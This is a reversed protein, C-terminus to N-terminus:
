AAVEKQDFRANQDPVYVGISVCFQFAGDLILLARTAGDERAQLLEAKLDLLGGDIGHGDMSDFTVGDGVQHIGDPVKMQVAILHKAKRVYDFTLANIVEDTLPLWQNEDNLVREAYCPICVSGDETGVEYREWTINEIQVRNCDACEFYGESPSGSWGDHHECLTLIGKPKDSFIDYHLYHRLEGDCRSPDDHEAWECVLKEGDLEGTRCARKLKEEFGKSEAKENLQKMTPLSWM